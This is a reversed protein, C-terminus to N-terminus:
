GEKATTPRPGSFLGVPVGNAVEWRRTEAWLKMEASM